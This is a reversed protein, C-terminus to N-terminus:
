RNNYDSLGTYLIENYINYMIGDGHEEKPIFVECFVVVGYESNNITVLEIKKIEVHSNPIQLEEEYKKNCYEMATNYIVDYDFLSYADKSIDGFYYAKYSRLYGHKSINLEIKDPIVFGNYDPKAYTIEYCNSSKNYSTSLVYDNLDVDYKNVYDLAITIAEDLSIEKASDYKLYSSYYIVNGKNNVHIICSKDSFEYVDYKPFYNPNQTITYRYEAEFVGINTEITRVSDDYETTQSVETLSKLFDSGKKCSILFISIFLLSLIILFNKNKRM